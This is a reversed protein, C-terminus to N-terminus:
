HDLTRKEFSVLNQMENPFWHGLTQFSFPSACLGLHKFDLTFNGCGTKIQHDMDDTSTPESHKILDLLEAM